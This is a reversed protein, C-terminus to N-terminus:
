TNIGSKILRMIIAINNMISMIIGIIYIFNCM